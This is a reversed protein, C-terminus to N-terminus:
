LRRARLLEHYVEALEPPCFVGRDDLLYRREVLEPDTGSLAAAEALRNLFEVTQEPYRKGWQAAQAWPGLDVVEEDRLIRIDAATYPM